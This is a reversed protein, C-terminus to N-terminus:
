TQQEYKLHEIALAYIAEQGWISKHTFVEDNFCRFIYLGDTLQVVLYVHVDPRGFRANQFVFIDGIEIPRRKDFDIM